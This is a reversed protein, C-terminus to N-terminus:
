HILKSKGTVEKMIQCINKADGQFQLLKDSYCKWKSKM